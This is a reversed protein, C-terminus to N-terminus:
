HNRNLVFDVTQCLIDGRDGFIHLHEKAQQGLTEARLKAGELGLISVFTAKGLGADKQVAKGMLDADGECDLVDDKIQFALGLDRAYHRLATSQAESARGLIAGASVAYEILAGTKLNQLNMILAEDRENESVTIDIVQGGIMGFVGGAKALKAILELRIDADPHCKPDSLIEFAHNLLGDGTLVALAEDYVKHVTPKGRRLDDDDMCPLDDHVLSYVHLAELAAATPLVTNINVDFLAASQVMLFPRLRKGGNLAAYRMAKAIVAQAGEPKPLWIDLAAEVAEATRRLESELTHSASLM